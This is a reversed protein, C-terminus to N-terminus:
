TAAPTPIPSFPLSPDNLFSPDGQKLHFKLGDEEVSQCRSDRHIRWRDICVDKGRIITHYRYVGWFFM